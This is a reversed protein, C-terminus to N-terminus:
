AGVGSKRSDVDAALYQQLHKVIYAADPGVGRLTASAYSRQDEIGMFYLGPKVLSVGYRQRPQGGADIAGLAALYDLNPQYGTAFIVADVPEYAGDAWLVGGPEFRTFMARHDPKGAAIAAQYVGTDLVAGSVLLGSRYGIELTQPWRDVQTVRWWWHIDKGLIRQQRFKIPARTAISTHAAEALEVAIQVASNGGGVVIVRQGAFQAPNCYDSSHLIAGAFSQQGPLQPMFPKHFAGSAAIVSRTQYTEGDATRVCFGGDCTDVRAVCVDTEVPLEFHAAYARLYGVVEDRTPYREPDGPFGFGPLESFRAPSFLKLSDYYHPWSGAADAHSELLTWRLATRRLHYGTGLGAQGAGIVITDYTASM